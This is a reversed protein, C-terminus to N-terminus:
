DTEKNTDYKYREYNVLRVYARDKVVLVDEDFIVIGVSTVRIMFELDQFRPFREDFGNVKKVIMFEIVLLTAHM